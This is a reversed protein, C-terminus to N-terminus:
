KVNIAERFVKDGFANVREPIFKPLLPIPNM